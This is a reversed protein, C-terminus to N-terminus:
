NVDLDVRQANFSYGPMAQRMLRSELLASEEPSKRSMDDTQDGGAGFERIGKLDAWAMWFSKGDPAIWKPAIQPSYARVATDGGPTWATEEHIQRWPGWPTASVWFGLYGPKGFETGDPACGTGAGAMMYLGLPENYVVSPLWTEVVIDGPFLSTRNVWGRPFRHVPKRKGLDGAWRPAGNDQFGAFFEYASRDLIHEIPVRFMVLQNMLGDSNGNPGYVYIYGDRNARYDQGMQLISLLSFCGDPEKFFALSRRSQEEWTEWKVPRTGDSNRWSRGGDDSQILKAATWRRPRDKAQDLASLFQYIRGHVALLGYGHYHPATEPEDSEAVNPYSEVESFMADTPGGSMSWLSRKFFKTPPDLWGSGDNVVVLQRDDAGWTMKYGDGLSSHRVITEDRRRVSRIADAGGSAPRLAALVGAGPLTQAAISAALSHKLFDRRQPTAV